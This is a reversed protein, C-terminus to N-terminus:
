RDQEIEDVPWKEKDDQRSQQGPKTSKGQRRRTNRGQKNLAGGKEAM